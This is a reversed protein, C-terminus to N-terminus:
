YYSSYQSYPPLSTTTSHRLLHQSYPQLSPTNSHRLQHRPFLTTIINREFSTILVPFIIPNYSIINREAHRLWYQSYTIDEDCESNSFMKIIESAGWIIPLSVWTHFLM